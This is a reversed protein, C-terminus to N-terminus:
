SLRRHLEDLTQPLRPGFGLLAMTDMVVLRKHRAAPTFALGPHQWFRGAGGSADVSEQTTLIIDPAAQVVSEANLEQYGDGPSLVNHAGALTIMAQAATGAGAGKVRGGLSMVFLVRPDAQGKLRRAQNAQNVCSLSAQWAEALSAELAQGAQQLGSARSAARVKGLLEDFGHRAPVLHLAVGAQRLQDLVRSPGAEDTGLVATPRLSLLGEASLQRMYGVKPTRLAAEPFTSTTDTGVLMAQAGLRYVVETMGGGLSVLRPQGDAARARWAVPGVALAPVVCHILTLRKM